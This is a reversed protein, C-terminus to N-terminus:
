LMQSLFVAALCFWTAMVAVVARLELEDRNMMNAFRMHLGGLHGVSRFVSCRRPSQM